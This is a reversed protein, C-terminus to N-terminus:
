FEGKRKEAAKVVSTRDDTGVIADVVAATKAEKILAIKEAATVVPADGSGAGLATPAISLKNEPADKKALKEELEKIRQELTEKENQAELQKLRTKLEANSIGPTEDPVDVYSFEHQLVKPLKTNLTQLYIKAAPMLITEVYIPQKNEDYLITRGDATKPTRVLLRKAM